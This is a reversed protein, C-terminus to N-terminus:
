KGSKAATAPFTKSATYSGDAQRAYTLGNSGADTVTADAAFACGEKPTVTVTATYATNAAFKGETLAPSWALAIDVNTNISTLATADSAGKAPTTITGSIAAGSMPVAVSTSVEAGLADILGDDTIFTSVTFLDYDGDKGTALTFEAKGGSTKAADTLEFFYTISIAAKPDDGNFSDANADTALFYPTGDTGEFSNTSFNSTTTMGDVKVGYYTTVGMRTKTLAGEADMDPVVVADDYSLTFTYATIYVDTTQSPTLTVTVQIGGNADPETASLAVTIANGADSAQNAALGAVSFLSLLLCVCLCLSLVRKM